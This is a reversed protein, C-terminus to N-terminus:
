KVKFSATCYQCKYPRTGMHVQKHHRLVSYHTKYSKNCKLCKFFNIKPLTDSQVQEINEAVNAPSNGADDNEKPIVNLDSDISTIHGEDDVVINITTESKKDPLRKENNETDNKTLLITGKHDTLKHHKKLETLTDFKAICASCKYVSENHTRLHKLFIHQKTFVEKCYECIMRIEPKNPTSQHIQADSGVSIIEALSSGNASRLEAIPQITILTGANM